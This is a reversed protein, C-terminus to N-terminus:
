HAYTGPQLQAYAELLQQQNQEKKAQRRNHIDWFLGTFKCSQEAIPAGWGTANNWRFMPHEKYGEGTYYAGGNHVIERWYGQSMKESSICSVAVRRINRRVFPSEIHRCILEMIGASWRNSAWRKFQRLVQRRTIDLARVIRDSKLTDTDPVLGDADFDADLLTFERPEIHIAIVVHSIYIEDSDGLHGCNFVVFYKPGHPLRRILVKVIEDPQELVHPERTDVRVIIENSTQRNHTFVVKADSM